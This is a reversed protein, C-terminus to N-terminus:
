TCASSEHLQVTSLNVASKRVVVEESSFIGCLRMKDCMAFKRARTRKLVNGREIPCKDQM